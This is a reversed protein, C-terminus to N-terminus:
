SKTKGAKKAQMYEKKTGKTLGRPNSWDHRRQFHPVEGHQERWQRRFENLEQLAEQLSSM